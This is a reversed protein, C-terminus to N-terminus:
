WRLAFDIIAETAQDPHLGVILGCRALLQQAAPWDTVEREHTTAVECPREDHERLEESADETNLETVLGKETWM